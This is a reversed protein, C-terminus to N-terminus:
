LVDTQSLFDQKFHKLTKTHSIRISRIHSHVFIFLGETGGYVIFKNRNTTWESALFFVLTLLKEKHEKIGVAFKATTHCCHSNVVYKEDSSNREYTKTSGLEQIM